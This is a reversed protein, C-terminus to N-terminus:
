GAQIGKVFISVMDNLHYELAREPNLSWVTTTGFLVRQFSCSIEIAPLDTRIEGAQQRKEFLLALLERSRSLAESMKSKIAENSFIAIMFSQFLIHSKQQEETMTVALKYILGRLPEESNINEAVFTKVKGMQRERYELLVSEKNEFYNFFTGKGIDADKAIADITTASFGQRSFLDLASWYIKERTEQSRRERRGLPKQSDSGENTIQM